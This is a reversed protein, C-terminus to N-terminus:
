PGIRPGIRPGFQTGLQPGVTTLGSAPGNQMLGILTAVNADSMEAAAGSWFAIYLYGVPATGAVGADGIQLLAGGGGPNTWAPSLTEQDTYVKYESRSRDVKLIVPHVTSGPTATGTVSAGALGTAKYKNGATLAVYRHDAGSGIGMVSREAAPTGTIDILALLLGSTTAINQIASSSFGGSSASDVLNFSKRTWGSVANDFTQAGSPTLAVAGIADPMGAGLNGQCLYLDAPNSLTSGALLETWEAANAPVYWLRTADRSITM